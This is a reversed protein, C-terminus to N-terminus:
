KVGKYDQLHKLLHYNTSKDPYLKMIRFCRFCQLCAVLRTLQKRPLRRKRKEEEETFADRKISDNVGGNNDNVDNNIVSSDVDVEECCTHNTDVDKNSFTDNNIDNKDDDNM